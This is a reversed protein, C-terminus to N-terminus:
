HFLFYRFFHFFRAVLINSWGRVESGRKRLRRDKMKGRRWLPVFFIWNTVIAKGSLSWNRPSRARVVCASWNLLYTETSCTQQTWWVFMYKRRTKKKIEEIVELFFWFFGLVSVGIWHKREEVKKWIMQLWAFGPLLPNLFHPPFV